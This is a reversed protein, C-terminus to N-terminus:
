ASPAASTKQICRSRSARQRRPRRRNARALLDRRALVLAAPLSGGERRVGGDRRATEMSSVSIRQNVATVRAVHAATKFIADLGDGGAGVTPMSWDIALNGEAEPWLQPAGNAVAEGVATVHPLAAYGIEVLEAADRAATQQEAVILVIPEGVHMVRARALAPRPPLVLAGGNRGTLPPHRSISTVGAAEIETGTLVRLVGKAARAREVDVKTLNAHAVSSRVFTGFVHKPQDLDDVFRGRGRVLREDEVRM